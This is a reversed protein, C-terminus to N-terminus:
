FPLTGPLLRGLFWLAALHVPYFWYFLMKFRVKGRKGNYLCICAASLAMAPLFMLHETLLAQVIVVMFQLSRTERALYLALIAAVGMFEYDVHLVEGLAGAGVIVLGCGWMKWIGMRGEMRQLLPLAGLAIALTFFVNQVDPAAVCGTVALDFPLESVLAFLCVNRLYRRYNGTHLFGQVLLFAFIPFAMRGIGRLWTDVYFLRRALESEGPWLYGPNQWGLLGNEILVVGIHDIMMTIVAIWKLAAGDLWGTGAKGLEM